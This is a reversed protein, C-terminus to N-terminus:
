SNSRGRCNPVPSYFTFRPLKLEVSINSARQLMEVLTFDLIKRHLGVITSQRLNFYLKLFM